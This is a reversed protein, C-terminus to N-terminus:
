RRLLFACKPVLYRAPLCLDTVVRGLPRLIMKSIDLIGETCMLEASMDAWCLSQDM